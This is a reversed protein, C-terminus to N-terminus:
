EDPYLLRTNKGILLISRRRPLLRGMVFAILRNTRGAVISPGSGLADLAEAVVAAPDMFPMGPVNDIRAGSKTIAPTDTAGPCLALVDVGRGRLEEWLAEGLLLNFAKTAAYNAIVPTGQLASSSSLFIIGGRGKEVMSPGLERALVMPARCNVDITRVMEGIDTKMFEGTTGYGANNVLLGVRRKGVARRIRKMFDPAALDATVPVADVGYRERIMGARRRLMRSQVDLMLLDLGRAACQAAFEAGIGSAAGTVLAWPGYRERFSLHEVHVVRVPNGANIARSVPRTFFNKGLRAGGLSVM